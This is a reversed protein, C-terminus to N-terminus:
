RELYMDYYQPLAHIYHVYGKVYDRTAIRFNPQALFIMPAEDIIIRQAEEFMEQRKTADQEAWGAAIIRDVDENCYGTYDQYNQGNDCLLTLSLTYSPDDVWTLMEDIAMQFTREGKAEAFVSPTMQEIKVEVGIERLQSQLQVAILEHVARSNDITLTVPSGDYSSGALLESAREIDREYGAESGPLAYDSGGPLPGYLRDVKGQYVNELIADYDVAYSVARRVDVDDFPPVATNLLVFVMNKSPFDSVVIGEAGELALLEQPGLQEVMDVDGSMLLAVREAASPVIKWVVRDIAAPGRWYDPRAEFVVEQDPIWSVITYAGSAGAANRKVWEEAWPDAETAHEKVQDSDLIANGSMFLVDMVLPSYRVTKLELTYDDIIQPAEEVAAISNFLWAQGYGTGISREVMYAVDDATIPEGNDFTMGERVRLIYTLGDDQPEWSELVLGILEGSNGVMIGDGVDIAPHKLPTDYIQTLAVNMRLFNSDAPDLHEIDGPIAITLVSGGGDPTSDESTSDTREPAVSSDTSRDDASCSAALLALVFLVVIVKLYRM